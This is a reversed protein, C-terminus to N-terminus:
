GWGINFTKIGTLFRIKEEFSKDYHLSIILKEIQKETLRSERTIVKIPPEYLGDKIYKESKCREKVSEAMGQVILDIARQKKVINWPIRPYKRRM